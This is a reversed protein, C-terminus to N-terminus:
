RTSTSSRYKLVTMITREIEARLQIEDEKTYLVGRRVLFQIEGVADQRIQAERVNPLNVFIRDLSGLLVGNMLVVYDEKRGDIDTRRTGPTRLLVIRGTRDDGSRQM